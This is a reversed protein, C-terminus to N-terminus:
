FLYDTIDEGKVRAVWYKDPDLQTLDVVLAQKNEAGKVTLVPRCPSKTNFDQVVAERLKPNDAYGSALEVLEGIPFPPFVAEMGRVIDPDYKRGQDQRIQHLIQIPKKQNYIMEQVVDNALCIFRSFIHIEEGERGRVKDEMKKKPFGSGDFHQHSNLIAHVVPAPMDLQHLLDRGVEPHKEWLALDAENQLRGQRAKEVIAKGSDSSYKEDMLGIDAFILAMGLHGLTRDRDFDHKVAMVDGQKNFIRSRDATKSVVWQEILDHCAIALTIGFSCVSAGFGFDDPRVAQLQKLLPSANDSRGLQEFLNSICRKYLDLQISVKKKGKGRVNLNSQMARIDKALAGAMERHEEMFEYEILDKITCETPDLSVVIPPFAGFLDKQRLLTKVFKETLQLGSKAYLTRTKPHRIEMVLYAGTHEPLEEIPIIFSM